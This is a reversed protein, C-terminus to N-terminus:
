APVGARGFVTEVNALADFMRDLEEPTNYLYPSARSLAPVGLREMLPQACHHGSRIAVGELDLITSVDHPHVGALAFSFVAERDVTGPPGVIRLRDGFRGQAERFAYALLSRGHSAIEESGIRELYDIAAALGIAGSVNPTGAEFRGPPERFDVKEQHVERIMEGGGMAPPMQDLLERRGWLVGIGTPGLMKHGSFAVLDAG